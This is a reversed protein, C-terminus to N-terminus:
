ISYKSNLKKTSLIKQRIKKCRHPYFNSDSISFDTCTDFRM